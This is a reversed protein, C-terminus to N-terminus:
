SPLWQFPTMARVLVPILTQCDNGYHTRTPQISLSYCLHIFFAPIEFGTLFAFTLFILYGSSALRFTPTMLLKVLHFRKTMHNHDFFFKLLFLRAHSLFM